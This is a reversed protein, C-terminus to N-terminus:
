PEIDDLTCLLVSPVPFALFAADLRARQAFLNNDHLRRLGLRAQVSNTVAAM